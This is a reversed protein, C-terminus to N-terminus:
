LTLSGPSLEVVDLQEPDVADYSSTVRKDAQQRQRWTRFLRLALTGVGATAAAVYASFSVHNSGLLVDWVLCAGSVGVVIGLGFWCEVTADATATARATITQDRDGGHRRELWEMWHIFTLLPAAVTVLVWLLVLVITPATTSHLPSATENHGMATTHWALGVSELAFGVLLGIWVSVRNHPLLPVADTTLTPPPPQAISFDQLFMPGSYRYNSMSDTRISNSAVLPEM